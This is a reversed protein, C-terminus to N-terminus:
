GLIFDLIYCLPKADAGVLYGGDVVFYLGGFAGSNNLKDVLVNRVADLGLIFAAFFCGLAQGCLVPVYRFREHGSNDM